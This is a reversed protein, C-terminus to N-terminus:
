EAAPPVPVPLLGRTATDVVYFYGVADLLLTGSSEGYKFLLKVSAVKPSALTSYVSRNAYIASAAMGNLSVKRVTPPTGDKYTVILKVKTNELAAADTVRLVFAAALNANKRPKFFSPFARTQSLKTTVGPTGSFRFACLSTLAPYTPDSCVIQDDTGNKLTWSEAELTGEFSQTPAFVGTQLIRTTLKLTSEPLLAATSYTGAAVYYNVNAVATFVTNAYAGNLDDVCARQTVAGPGTLEYIALITDISETDARALFSGFTSLSITSAVPVNFTFWVSHPIVENAKCAAIPEGGENTAEEIEPVTYNKGPKITTANIFNDNSPATRPQQASVALSTLMVALLIFLSRRKM